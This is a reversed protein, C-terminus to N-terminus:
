PYVIDVTFTHYHHGCLINHKHVVFEIWCILFINCGLRCLDTEKIHIHKRLNSIREQHLSTEVEGEYHIGQWVQYDDSSQKVLSVSAVHGCTPPGIPSQSNSSVRNQIIDAPTCRADEPTADSYQLQNGTSIYQEEESKM